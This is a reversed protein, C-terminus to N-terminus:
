PARSVRGALESGSRPLLERRARPTVTATLKQLHSHGLIPFLSLQRESAAKSREAQQHLSPRWAVFAPFWLSQFSVRSTPGKINRTVAKEGAEANLRGTALTNQPVLRGEQPHVTRANGAGPTPQAEAIGDQFPLVLHSAWTHYGVDLRCNKKFGPFLLIIAM